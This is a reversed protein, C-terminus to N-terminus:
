SDEILTFKTEGPLILNLIDEILHCLDEYKSLSIDNRAMFGVVRLLLSNKLQSKLQLRKRMTELHKSM